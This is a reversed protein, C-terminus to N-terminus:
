PTLRYTTTANGQAELCNRQSLVSVNLGMCTIYIYIYINVGQDGQSTVNQNGPEPKFMKKEFVGLSCPQEEAEKDFQIRKKGKNQKKKLLCRPLRSLEPGIRIEAGYGSCFASSTQPQTMQLASSLKARSPVAGDWECSRQLSQPISIDKKFALIQAVATRIERLFFSFGGRTINAVTVLLLYVYNTIRNRRIHTIRFM